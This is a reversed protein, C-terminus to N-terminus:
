CLIIEALKNFVESLLISKLGQVLLKVRLYQITRCNQQRYFVLVAFDRFMPSRNNSISALELSVDSEVNQSYPSYICGPALLKAIFGCSFDLSLSGSAYFLCDIITMWTCSLSCSFNDM